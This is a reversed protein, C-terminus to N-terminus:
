TSIKKSGSYKHELIILNRGEDSRYEAIEAATIRIMDYIGNKKSGLDQLEKRVSDM